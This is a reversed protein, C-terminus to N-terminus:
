GAARAQALSDMESHQKREAQEINEETSMSCIRFDGAEKLLLIKVAGALTKPHESFGGQDLLQRICLVLLAM